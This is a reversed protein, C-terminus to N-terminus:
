AAARRAVADDYRQLVTEAVLRHPGLPQTMAVGYTGACRAVRDTIRGPALFWPAVVIRELGRGLMDEITAGVSSRPGTAFATETAWRSRAALAAAVGATRVNAPEWSSGVAVVIVGIGADDPSVGAEDLRQRLVSILQADEGLAAAYRVTRGSAQVIAPIDVRAHYATALLLPAIVAGDPVEDLVDRLNPPTQECFASRVDLGPRLARVRDAVAFATASSREDASGHAVLVLTV